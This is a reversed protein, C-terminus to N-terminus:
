VSLLSPPRVELQELRLFCQGKRRHAKSLVSPPCKDGKAAEEIVGQVDRLTEELLGLEFLVASRNAFGLV